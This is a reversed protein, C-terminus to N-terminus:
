EELSDYSSVNEINLHQIYTNQPTPLAQQELTIMKCIPSQHSLPSLSAISNIKYNIRDELEKIKNKLDYIILYLENIKSNLYMDNMSKKLM